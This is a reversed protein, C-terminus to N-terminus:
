PWPLRLGPQCASRNTSASFSILRHRSPIVADQEIDDACGTGALVREDIIAPRSQRGTGAHADGPAADRTRRSRAALRMDRQRRIFELPATIGPAKGQMPLRVIAAVTDAALDIVPQTGADPDHDIARAGMDCLRSLTIARP